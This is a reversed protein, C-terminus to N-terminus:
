LDSLWEGLFKLKLQDYEKDTLLGNAKLEGLRGICDLAYRRRLENKIPTLEERLRKADKLIAEYQGQVERVLEALDYFVAVLTESAIREELAKELVDIRRELRKTERLVM